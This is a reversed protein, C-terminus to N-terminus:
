RCPDGQKDEIEHHIISIQIDFKERLCRYLQEACYVSRHQGGTCGFSVMLHEHERQLYNEVSASILKCAHRLFEKVEQKDNLFDVIEKDLGTKDKFQDYRGPNPLARCDFVFGGGHGSYDQPIGKKFAFSNLQVHMNGSSVNKVPHKVQSIMKQLAQTLHPIDVGLEYDNILWKLNEIAPPISQLFLSKREFYGRYGYAGFAQLARILCYAPFYKLFKKKNFFTQESYVNLYYELLESREDATLGSKAEYLLSALDYQLAGRRGGQFDIFYVKNGFIMINRSQFDRFLFFTDKAELLFDTLRQFDDELKQEHFPIYTLKLYYYKFYNLDWMISQRDFAKRPYCVSFDFDLSSQYQMAPMQEIVKRYWQLYESSKNQRYEEVLDLLNIDGLDQQLYIHTDLDSYYIEPVNVGAGALKKQIYIFAENEARDPNYAAILSNKGDSLRFYLRNSATPPLSICFEPVKGTFKQYAGLIDNQYKHM